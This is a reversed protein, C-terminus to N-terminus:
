QRFNYERYVEGDKIMRVTYRQGALAAPFPNYRISHRGERLLVNTYIPQVLICKHDYYGASVVASDSIAFPINRDLRNGNFEALIAGKRKDYERKLADIHVGKITAAEKQLADRIAPNPDTISLVPMDDSISWVAEQAAHVLFKKSAIFLAMQLLAPKAKGAVQYHLSTTPGSKTLETCM